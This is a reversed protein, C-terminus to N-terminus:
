ASIKYYVHDVYVDTDIRKIMNNIWKSINMIKLFSLVRINVNKFSKFTKINRGIWNM